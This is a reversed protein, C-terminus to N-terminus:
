DTFVGPSITVGYMNNLWEVDNSVNYGSREFAELTAAYNNLRNIYDEKTEAQGLYKMVGEYTQDNKLADKIALPKTGGSNNTRTGGGGAVGGGGSSRGAGRNNLAAEKFGVEKDRLALMAKQYPTMEQEVGLKLIDAPINIGNSAAQLYISLRQEPTKAAQINGIVQQMAANKAKTQEQAIYSNILPSVKAVTDKSYGGTAIKNLIQMNLSNHDGYQKQAQQLSVGANKIATNMDIPQMTDTPQQPAINGVLSNVKNISNGIGGSVLGKFTDTDTEATGFDYGLGKSKQRFYDAEASLQGSIEPTLTGDAEHKSYLDKRKQIENAYSNALQMNNYETNADTVAKNKGVYDNYTQLLDAVEKQEGRKKYNELYNNLGMNLMTQTIIGPKQDVRIVQM